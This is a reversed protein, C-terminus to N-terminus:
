SQGKPIKVTFLKDYRPITITQAPVFQPEFVPEVVAHRTDDVTLADIKVIRFWDRGYPEQFVWGPRLAELPAATTVSGPSAPGALLWTVEEGLEPHVAILASLIARVQQPDAQNLRDALTM